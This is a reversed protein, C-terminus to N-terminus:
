SAEERGEWAQSLTGSNVISVVQTLVEGPSMATVDIVSVKIRTSAYGKMAREYIGHMDKVYQLSTSSECPRGRKRVRHMAEEAECRLYIIHRPLSALLNGLGCLTEYQVEKLWGKNLMYWMFTDPQTYGCREEFDFDQDSLCVDVLIRSQLRLAARNIRETDGRSLAQYYEDLLVAWGTVDEQRTKYGMDALGHLLVSKGAGLSGEITIKLRPKADSSCTSM